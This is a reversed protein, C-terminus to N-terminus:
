LLGKERLVQNIQEQSLGGRCEDCRPKDEKMADESMQFPEECGWCIGQKSLVIHSLGDHVFWPCMTCTWTYTKKAPVRIFKHVHKVIDNEEICENIPVSPLTGVLTGTHAHRNLGGSGVVCVM